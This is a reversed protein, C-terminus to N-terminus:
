KKQFVFDGGEHGSKRIAQFNPTQSSGGQVPGEIYEGFLEEATFAPENMTQLGQLFYKAFISHEGGGADSVPENGGSAILLRSRTNLMKELYRQRNSTPIRALGRGQRTLTGSYCSDAM